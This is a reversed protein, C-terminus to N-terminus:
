NKPPPPPPMETLSSEDARRAIMEVKRQIEMNANEQAVRALEVGKLLDFDELNLKERKQHLADLEIELDSSEKSFHDAESTNKATDDRIRKSDAQWKAEKTAAVQDDADKQEKARKEASVRAQEEAEKKKADANTKQQAIEDARAKDRLAIQGMEQNYYFLFVALLIAPFILYMWKKM